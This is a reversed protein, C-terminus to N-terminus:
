RELFHRLICSFRWKKLMVNRTKLAFRVTVDFKLTEHMFDNNLGLKIFCRSGYWKGSVTILAFKQINKHNKILLNANFRQVIRQVIM